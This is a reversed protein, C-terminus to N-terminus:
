RLEGAFGAFWTTNSLGSGLYALIRSTRIRADDDFTLLSM